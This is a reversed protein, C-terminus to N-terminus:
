RFRINRRTSYIGSPHKAWGRRFWSYSSNCFQSGAEKSSSSLFVAKRKGTPGIGIKLAGQVDRGTGHYWITKTDYGIERARAKRSETDMPLGKAIAQQYETLESQSLLGKELAERYVVSGYEFTDLNDM